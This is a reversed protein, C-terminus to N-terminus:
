ASVATVAITLQLRPIMTTRLLVLKAKRATFSVHYENDNNRMRLYVLTGYGILSAYVFVHLQKNTPGLGGNYQFCGLISLKELQPLM